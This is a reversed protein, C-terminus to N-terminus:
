RTQNEDNYVDCVFKPLSHPLKALRTGYFKLAFEAETPVLSLDSELVSNLVSGRHQKGIEVSCRM